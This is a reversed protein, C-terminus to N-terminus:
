AWRLPQGKRTELPPAVRAIDLFVLRYINCLGCFSKLESIKTPNQLGNITDRVQLALDLHSTWPNTWPLRDHRHLVLVMELEAYSNGTKLFKTWNERTCRAREPEVLFHRHRQRLINRVEM